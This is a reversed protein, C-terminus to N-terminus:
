FFRLAIKGGIWTKVNIGNSNTRDSITYLPIKSYIDTFYSTNADCSLLNFTLGAAISLQSALKRDIGVYVKYLSNTFSYDNRSLLHNSTLDIDFLTKNPNGFSTGLGYGYTWLVKDSQKTNIGASFITHFLETGTRFSLTAMSTEEYALEMKHYGSKVYSFLGIPIGTCTDSINIISLQLGKIRRAKNILGSIQSHAEGTYNMLGAIQFDSKNLAINILGSAQLGNCSDAANLIGSLQAKTSRAVNIIGSAQILNTKYAFNCTGAMQVKADLAFNLTGSAQLISSFSQNIVGGLQFDSNGLATNIIGAGQVGKVSHAYNLIGGGQFGTFNGGVINGVGALQCYRANTRVINLIGGLELKKIGYVYGITVNLSFNNEVNGTLFQNTSVLPLLSLQVSRFVSDSLNLSHIKIKKPILWNPVFKQFSIRPKKKILASDQQYLPVELMRKQQVDIRAALITDSYGLKSVYISPLPKAVPMEMKFYGYQDTVTSVLMDKSYVSAESVIEGSNSDTIYGEIIQKDIDKPTPNKKLIVYKGKTKFSVDNDFLNNLVLKVPKNSAHITTRNRVSIAEPSYSFVFGAQSSIDTLVTEISQNDANITVKRELAPITIKQAQVFYIHLIAVALLNFIKKM